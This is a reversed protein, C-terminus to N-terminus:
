YMGVAGSTYTDQCTPTEMKQLLSDRRHHGLSHVPWLLRDPFIIRLSISEFAFGFFNQCVEHMLFSILGTAIVPNGWYVYWAVWKQEAWSLSSYDVGSYLANYADPQAVTGNFSM